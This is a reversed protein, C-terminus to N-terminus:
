SSGADEGGQIPSEGDGTPTGVKPVEEGQREEVLGLELAEEYNGEDELFNLLQHPNNDFRSRVEAPMEMFLRNAENIQNVAAQYDDVNTFDGYKAIGSVVHTISGTAAFRRMLINIDCEDRHSQQTRGPECSIGGLEDVRRMESM